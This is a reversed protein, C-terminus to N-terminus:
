QMHSASPFGSPFDSKYQSRAFSCSSSSPWDAYGGAWDRALRSQLRATRTKPYNRRGQPRDGGPENQFARTAKMPNKLDRDPLSRRCEASINGTKTGERRDQDRVLWYVAGPPRSSEEPTSLIVPMAKTHVLAVVANPETTLFGYHACTVEGELRKRVGTWIGASV